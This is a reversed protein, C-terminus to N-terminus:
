QEKEENFMPREIKALEEWNIPFGMTNLVKDLCKNQIEPLVSTMFIGSLFM